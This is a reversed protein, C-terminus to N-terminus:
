LEDGGGRRPAEGAGAKGEDDIVHVPTFHADKPNRKENPMLHVRVELGVVDIYGSAKAKSDPKTSRWLKGVTKFRAVKV